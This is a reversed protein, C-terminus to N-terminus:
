MQKGKFVAPFCTRRGGRPEEKPLAAFAAVSKAFKPPAPKNALAATLAKSGWKSLDFVARQPPPLGGEALLGEFFAADFQAPIDMTELLYCCLHRFFSPRFFKPRPVAAQATAPAKRTSKVLSKPGM